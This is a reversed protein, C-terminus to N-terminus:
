VLYSINNLKFIQENGMERKREREREREGTKHIWVQEKDYRKIQCTAVPM